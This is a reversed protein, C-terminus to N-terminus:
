SKKGKKATNKKAAKREAERARLAEVAAEAESHDDGDFDDEIDAAIEAAIAPADHEVDVGDDETDIEDLLDAAHEEATKTLGAMERGREASVIEIADGEDGRLRTLKEIWARVTRPESGDDPADLRVEAWPTDQDVGFRLVEGIEDIGSVHVIDGESIVEEALEPESEPAVPSTEGAMALEAEAAIIRLSEAIDILVTTSAVSLVTKRVSESAIAGSAALERKVADLDARNSAGDHHTNM